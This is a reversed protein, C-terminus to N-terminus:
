LRFWGSANVIVQVDGGNTAVSIASTDAKTDYYAILTSTSGVGTDKYLWLQTITDGGPLASYTVDDSNAYGDTITKTSLASSTAIIAGGTVDDLFDHAANYTYSSDLAVVKFTDTDWATDGGLFQQRGIASLANAM